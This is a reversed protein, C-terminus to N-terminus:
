FVNFMTANRSFAPAVSFPYQLGAGANYLETIEAGSLARSWIGVEDMRGNLYYAVQISRGVNLDSSSTNWNSVNTGAGLETGNVYVRATTGNFTGTLMYWTNNLFTYNQIVDAAYGNWVLSSSSVGDWGIGFHQLAYNSAAGYGILCHNKQVTSADPSYYWVNFSRASNGVPIGSPSTKVFYQSSASALYAGNNIKAAGFTATNTNTLTNSGASDAANGSAEDLKWYSVINDILAM